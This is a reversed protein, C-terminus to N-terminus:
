LGPATSAAPKKSDPQHPLRFKMLITRQFISFNNDSVLWLITDQGERTVAIGEM